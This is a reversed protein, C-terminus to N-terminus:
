AASPLDKKQIAQDYGLQLDSSIGALIETEEDYCMACMLQEVFEVEAKANPRDNPAEVPWEIKRIAQKISFLIAGITPSNDSMERYVRAGARGVLDQLFEERLWGGYQRLGYSGYDQFRMGATIQPVAGFGSGDMIPDKAM